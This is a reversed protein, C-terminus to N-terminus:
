PELDIPEGNIDFQNPKKGRIGCYLLYNLAKILQGDKVDHKKLNALEMQRKYSNAAGRIDSPSIKNGGRSIMFAKAKDIIESAFAPVIGVLYKAAEKIDEENEMLSYGNENIVFKEIFEISTEEDLQGLSILGGIRKGRIFTPEILEIHNTTFISIIPKQKTDGGDIINLIEQMHSDREGRITQDIDEAFVICGRDTKAYNEAIKLTKAIYRCDKLYIFTWGHRIAIKGIMFALLTKGTGYQGEMIASYKLDLGEDICKETHQIRALIPTLGERAVSSILIKNEDINSLDIFKPERAIDDYFELSIAHGKYISETELIRNAEDIISKVEDEFKMKIRGTVTLEINYSNYDMELYSEDDFNPLAVCGWPIKVNTGDPLEIDILEPVKEGSAEQTKTLDCIGTVNKVAQFLALAGEDSFCKLVYKVEIIQEEAKVHEMMSKVAKNFGNEEVMAMFKDLKESESMPKFLKHEKITKRRLRVSSKIPSEEVICLEDKEVSLEECKLVDKEKLAEENIIKSM